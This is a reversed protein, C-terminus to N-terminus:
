RRKSDSPTGLGRARQASGFIDDREPAAGTCLAAIWEDTTMVAAFRSQLVVTFVRHIEDASAYGARNSYAVSGAADSLFEASLGAHAAHRITADDCNHTMYGVVTITDIRHRRL